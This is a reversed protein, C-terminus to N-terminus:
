VQNIFVLSVVVGGQERNALTIRGGHHQMIDYCYTLGMGLGDGVPLTTYFPDFVRKIMQPAIGVGNDIVQLASIADKEKAVISIRKSPESTNRSCSQIANKLIENLLRKIEQPIGLVATLQEVNPHIEISIETPIDLERVLENVTQYVNVKSFEEKVLYNHSSYEQLATVINKVREIGKSADKLSDRFDDAIYSMHNSEYWSVLESKEEESLQSSLAPLSKDLWQRYQSLYSLSM